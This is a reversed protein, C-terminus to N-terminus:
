APADPPGGVIRLTPHKDQNTLHGQHALQRRMFEEMDVMYLEDTPMKLIAGCWGCDITVNAIAFDQAKDITPHEFDFTNGCASCHILVSM